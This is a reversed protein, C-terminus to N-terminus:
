GMESGGQLVYSKGSDRRVGVVGQVPSQQQPIMANRFNTYAASLDALGQYDNLYDSIGQQMAPTAAAPSQQLLQPAAQRSQQLLQPASQQSQQQGGFLLSAYRCTISHLFIM